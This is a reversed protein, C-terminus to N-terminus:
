RRCTEVSSGFEGDVDEGFNLIVALVALELLFDRVVQVLVEDGLAVGRAIEEVFEKVLLVGWPSSIVRRTRRLVSKDQSEGFARRCGEAIGSGGRGFMAYVLAESYNAGLDREFSV